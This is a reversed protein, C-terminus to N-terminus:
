IINNLIKECKKIDNITDIDISKKPQMIFPITKSSFLHRKKLFEKVYIIYIAGNPIFTKPLDQRRMFPMKNDILGELFGKSNLIFSKYPTHEPEYVSILSHGSLQFFLEFANDIDINNRLPSTPQLLILVDYKENKKELQKICDLIVTESSTTDSAYKEPRKIIEADYKKAINLIEENESSVVTKTIYKSNLSAEITYAILPKGNLPYINKKHLGKSGGRAPIISLVSQKKM